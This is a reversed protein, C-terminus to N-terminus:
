PKQSNLLVSYAQHIKKAYITSPKVKGQLVQMKDKVEQLSANKPLGFLALSQAVEKSSLSNPLTPGPTPPTQNAATTAPNASPVKPSRPPTIQLGTQNTIAINQAPAPLQPRGKLILSVLRRTLRRPRTEKHEADAEYFWVPLEKFYPMSKVRLPRKGFRTLIMNSKHPALVQMVQDTTMLAREAQNRRSFPNWFSTRTKVTGEGLYDSLFKGTEYENTGMWYTVDSNGLFGRWDQPYSKKLKELDQTIALLRVGYGRMVPASVAIAEIHGLSPMEDIAFLTPNSLNGPIKEFLDLSVVTILRFWTRLEERIAGTPACIFLDLDGTKLDELSFDSHRSIARIEPMDFFKMASRATSLVDGYSRGTNAMTAGANAIVGGFDQNAQMEDLLYRFPFDPINPPIKIGAAKVEDAYGRTILDRVRIMNRKNTPETTYVHLILGQLFERATKPFYPKDGEIPVIGEAMKMAYKVVGDRGERKEVRTLEDMANWSASCHNKLIGYPDLIHVDKGMGKIGRAGMGRRRAIIKTIQGKPDVVFANGQHLGLMTILLTTKGTGTGAVMSLHREGKFGLPQLLRFGYYGFGGLLIDGRRFVLVLRGLLGGWKATSKRGTSFEDSQWEKFRIWLRAIPRWPLFM